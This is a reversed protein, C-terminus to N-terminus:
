RRIEAPKVPFCTEHTYIVFGPRAGSPKKVYRRRTWAVEVTGSASAGSYAAALSAAYLLTEDSPNEAKIIVHSGPINKAHLWIENPQASFTLADNQTNNRGVLIKVGDPSTYELPKAPSLAKKRSRSTTDKVYGARIMEERIEFLAAEDSCLGLLTELSGLYELENSSAEIQTGALKRATQAKKYQRFYKQANANADLKEDLEVEMLSASEDYYNPLLVKKQGKRVLHPNALLMEGKIRYEELKSASDYAERQLTLKKQTREINAKIVRNLSASIQGLRENIDRLRYFEDAAESLSPYLRQPMGSRSKYEFPLLELPDDSSDLTLRPSPCTLMEDIAKVVAGSFAGADSVSADESGCVRCAVERALPLSMGSISQQLLKAFTGSKGNLAESLSANDLHDFDLKGHPPPPMYKLGPLVERYSSILENVHRSSELIRGDGNIFIINSHKGMMELIVSKPLRDGLEDTHEFRFEMVRDSFLQKVGTLRGGVLHKRMLMCLAPPELPNSKKIATIHARFCAPNASILLNVNEGPCRLTMIIEDREPQAIKDVRAGSLRADLERALHFVTFGDM